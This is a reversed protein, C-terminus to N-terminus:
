PKLTSCKGDRRKQYESLPVDVVWGGREVVAVTPEPPPPPERYEGRALEGYIGMLALVLWM